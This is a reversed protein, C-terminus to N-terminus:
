GTAFAGIIAGAGTLGVLHYGGTVAALLYPKPTHPTLANTLTAAAVAVGVALGLLLGEIAGEASCAGILVAVMLAGVLAGVLPVVYYPLPYRGGTTRRDVGISRDWQRGFLPTFWIAGLVFYALAALLTAWWHIGVLGDSISTDM